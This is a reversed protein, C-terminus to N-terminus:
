RPLALECDLKYAIMAQHYKGMKAQDTYFDRSEFEHIRKWPSVDSHIMFNAASLM